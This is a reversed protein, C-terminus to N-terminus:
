RQSRAESTLLAERLKRGMRLDLIPVWWSGLFCSRLWIEQDPRFCPKDPSSGGQLGRPCGAERLGWPAMVVRWPVDLLGFRPGGGGKSDGSRRSPWQPKLGTDAERDKSPCPFLELDTPQIEPKERDKEPKIREPSSLREWESPAM